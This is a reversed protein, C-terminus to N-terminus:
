EALHVHCGLNIEHQKLEVSTMISEACNSGGRIWITLQMRRKQIEMVHSVWAVPISSTNGAKM